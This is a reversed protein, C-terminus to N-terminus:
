TLLDPRHRRMSRPWGNRPAWMPGAARTSSARSAATPWPPACSLPWLLRPISAFDTGFGRRILILESLSDAEDLYFEKDQPTYISETKTEVPAAAKGGARTEPPVSSPLALTGAALVFMLGRQLLSM